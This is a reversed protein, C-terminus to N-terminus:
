KLQSLLYNQKKCQDYSTQTVYWSEKLEVFPIKQNFKSSMLWKILSFCSHWHM